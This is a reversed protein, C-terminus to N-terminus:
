YQLEKIKNLEKDWILIKGKGDTTVIRSNSKNWDIGWILNESKSQKILDGDKNWLGLFESATALFEGDNSWKINRFEAKSKEINKINDGNASWFQLLPPFDKEFDGYDGTVFFEGSPHWDVCLMLVEENRPKIDFISDKDFNYVSIKEGVAVVINKEPHWDLGILGKQKTNIKKIIKVSEDYINLSGSYDGVALLEGMKNWGIARVGFEDLSDLQISEKSKPNFILSKSKEGQMAIALQNKFPHWKTKTITGEMSFAKVLKYTKSSFIRLTDQTGGVSIQEDNPNWSATWLWWNERENEIKKEDEKCGYSLSISLFLLISIKKIM